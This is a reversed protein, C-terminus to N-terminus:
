QEYYVIRGSLQDFFKKFTKIDIRKETGTNPDNYYIYKKNIGTILIAHEYSPWKVIEGTEYDLWKEKYVIGEDLNTTFWAIMPNGSKLIKRIDNITTDTKTKAGDKFKNATVKIPENLVGYSDEDLPSGVFEKEPNAGELIDGDGYPLPGKPLEDIIEDISVDVNYYKLLMYLSVSECGTPFDPYQNIPEVELKIKKNSLLYIIIVITVILFIVPQKRLRRKRKKMKGGVM